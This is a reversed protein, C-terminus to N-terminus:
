DKASKGSKSSKSSTAPSKRNSSDKIASTKKSTKIEKRTRQRKLWKDSGAFPGEDKDADDPKRKKLKKAVCEDMADKDEIILEILAHYLAKHKPSKNFSKSKTMTDFLTTKQNFEELANTDSSTISSEPVQHNRAHEMKIKQIDDISKQPAYQQILREVIEAPVSHEKIIDAFNRQIVKHLADELILGLYEKVVNLVKSKITSIVTTSNQVKKLVKVDKSIPNTLLSSTRPVEHEVNIDLMSIVKTKASLINAFNLFKGAYDSSISSSLLPVKTKQTAQADDKVQNSAGEQNVNVHEVDVHGVNTMKEDDKEEDAPEAYILRINVDGYLEESIREYEEGNVDNSEDNTENDTPVYNKPTHIFVDDSEKDEETTKQNESDTRQDDAQELDDDSELVDEDDGQVNAEDGSDGWSEYESESSDAKSVDLVGLKLGTGEYTDVSKGKPEDPVEPQLGVGDGLWMSSPYNNGTSKVKKALKPEEEVVTVFTRKMSPSAPKKFKRAKKPSAAGTAFTLYTKYAPSDRTKQNTMVEILLEGYVQYDDDKSVFRMLGLISDEEVTHMFMRNRMSISKDRTIFHHIIDKTFRPYYMKEQKKTARNEIQFTFDHADLVVQYTPEKQTKAPDIRLNCKGIEVRNELPVLANDLAFQQATTTAM